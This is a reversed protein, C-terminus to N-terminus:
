TLPLSSACCDNSSVPTVAPQGSGPLTIVTTQKFRRMQQAYGTGCTCLRQVKPPLPLFITLELSTVYYSRVRGELSFVCRFSMCRSTDRLSLSRRLNARFHKQFAHFGSLHSLLCLCKSSHRIDQTEDEYHHFSPFLGGLSDQSGGCIGLCM